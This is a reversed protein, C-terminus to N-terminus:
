VGVAVRLEQRENGGHSLRPTVNEGEEDRILGLRQVITVPLVFKQLSRQCELPLSADIRLEVFPIRLADQGFEVEVRASGETDALAGKLRSMGALPLAGEFIRQAAVM